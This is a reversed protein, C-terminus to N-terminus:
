DVQHAVGEAAPQHSAAPRLLCAPVGAAIMGSPIDSKVLAGAAVVAHDGITCPGLVTANSAIWVGHGIVIDRGAAPASYQRDRELLAVDHTGTLLSVGSGLFSHDGIRINGSVTNLVANNLKVNEGLFVRHHGTGRGDYVYPREFIVAQVLRGFWGAILRWRIAWWIRQM